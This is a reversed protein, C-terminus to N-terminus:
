QWALCLGTKLCCAHRPRGAGASCTAVQRGEELGPEWCTGRAAAAGDRGEEQGGDWAYKEGAMDKWTPELRCALGKKEQAPLCASAGGGLRGVHCAQTTQGMDKRGAGEGMGRLWPSLSSM